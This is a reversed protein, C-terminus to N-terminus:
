SRNISARRGDPPGVVDARSSRPADAIQEVFQPLQRCYWNSDLQVLLPQPGGVSGDDLAVGRPNARLEAPRRSDFDFLRQTVCELPPALLHAGGPLAM